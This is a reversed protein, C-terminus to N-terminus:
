SNPTAIDCPILLASVDESSWRKSSRSRPRAHSLLAEGAYTGVVGIVWRLSPSEGSPITPEHSPQVGHPATEMPWVGSLDPPVGAARTRGFAVPMGSLIGPTKVAYIGHRIATNKSVSFQAYPAATRDRHATDRARRTDACSQCSAHKTQVILASRRRYRPAISRGCSPSPSAIPRPDPRHPPARRDLPQSLM